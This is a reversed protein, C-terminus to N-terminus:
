FEHGKLMFFSCLDEYKSYKVQLLWGTAGITHGTQLLCIAHCELAEKHLIREM